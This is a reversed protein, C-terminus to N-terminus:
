FHRVVIIHYITTLVKLNDNDYKARKNSALQDSSEKDDDSMEMEDDDHM